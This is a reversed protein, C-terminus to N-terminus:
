NSQRAHAAVAVCLASRCIVEDPEGRWLAADMCLFFLPLGLTKDKVKQSAWHRRYGRIRCWLQKYTFEGEAFRVCADIMREALKMAEEDTMDMLHRVAGNSGKKM